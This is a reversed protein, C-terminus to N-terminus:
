GGRPPRSLRAPCGGMASSQMTPLGRNIFKRSALSTGPIVAPHYPSKQVAAPLGEEQDMRIAHSDRQLSLHICRYAGAVGRGLHVIRREAIPRSPHFVLDRDSQAVVVADPHFPLPRKSTEQALSRM